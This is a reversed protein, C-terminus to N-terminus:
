SQDASDTVTTERHLDFTDLIGNTVLLLPKVEHPLLHIQTRRDADEDRHIGAVSAPSFKRLVELSQEPSYISM